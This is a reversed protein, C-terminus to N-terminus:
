LIFYISSVCGISLLLECFPSSRNQAYIGHDAQTGESWETSKSHVNHAFAARLM